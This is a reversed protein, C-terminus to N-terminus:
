IISGSDHKTQLYMKEIALQLVNSHIASYEDGDHPFDGLQWDISNEMLELTVDAVGQAIEDIKNQNNM